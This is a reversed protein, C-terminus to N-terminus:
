AFSQEPDPWHVDSAEADPTGDDHGTQTRTDALGLAFSVLLASTPLVFGVWGLSYTAYGVAAIEIPGFMPIATLGFTTRTLAGLGLVLDLIALTGAVAFASVALTIAAHPRKSDETGRLVVWALYAWAFSELVFFSSAILQLQNWGPDGLDNAPGTLVLLLRLLAFVIMAGAVLNALGAYFPRPEATALAALGIAIAVWAAAKLVAIVLSLVTWGLMTDGATASVYNTVQPGLLEVLGILIAGRLILPTARAADSQRTLILAPLLIILERPLLQVGLLLSADFSIPPHLVGVARGVVDLLALAVFSRGIIPLGAWWGALWAPVPIRMPDVVGLATTRPGPPSTETPVQAGAADTM